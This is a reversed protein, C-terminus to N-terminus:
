TSTSIPAPARRLQGFRRSSARRRQRAGQGRGERRAPALPQGLPFAVSSSATSRATSQRRSQHQHGAAANFPERDFMELPSRWRPGAGQCTIRGTRPLPENMDISFSGKVALRRGDALAFSADPARSSSPEACRPARSRAAGRAAALRRGAHLRPQGRGADALGTRVRRPPGCAARAGLGLRAPVHRGAALRAGSAQDGLRPHAAGAVSPWLTKFVAAPMPGIKGDLRAKMAGAM